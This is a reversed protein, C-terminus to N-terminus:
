ESTGTREEEEGEGEDEEVAEKEVKAKTAKAESKRSKATRRAEGSSAGAVAPLPQNSELLSRIEDVFEEAALKLELSITQLRSQIANFLIVAEIAVAIGIATAILAEGIEGAVVDFGTDGTEEIKGMARLIGVVTGFLGIFPATAGITGLVWLWRRLFVGARQRERNVLAEVKEPKAGGIAADTGSLFIRAVSVPYGSSLTQKVAELSGKGFVRKLADSLRGLNRMFSRHVWVREITVAIALISCFFLLGLTVGGIKILEILKDWTIM